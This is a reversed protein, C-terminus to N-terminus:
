EILNPTTDQTWHTFYYTLPQMHSLIEWESYLICLQKSRCKLDVLSEWVGLNTLGDGSGDGGKDFRRYEALNQESHIM